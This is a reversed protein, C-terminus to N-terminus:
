GAIASFSVACVDITFRLGDTAFRKQLAQDDLPSHVDGLYQGDHAKVMTFNTGGVRAGLAGAMAAEPRGANPSRHKGGDRRVIALGAGIWIYRGPQACRVAAATVRAPIFSAVDDLDHLASGLSSM